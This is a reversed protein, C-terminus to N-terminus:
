LLDLGGGGTSIRRGMWNGQRSTTAYFIGTSYCRFLKTQINFSQCLPLIIWIRSEYNGLTDRSIIATVHVLIWTWAANTLRTSRLMYAQCSGNNYHYNWIVTSYTPIHWTRIYTNNNVEVLAGRDVHLRSPLSVGHCGIHLPFSFEFFYKWCLYTSSNLPENPEHTCGRSHTLPTCNQDRLWWCRIM